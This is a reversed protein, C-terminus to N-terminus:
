TNYCRIQYTNPKATALATIYLTNEHTSILKVCALVLIDIKTTHTHTTTAFKYLCNRKKHTKEKTKM